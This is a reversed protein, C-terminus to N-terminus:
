LAKEVRTGAAGAVGICLAPTKARDEGAENGPDYEAATLVGDGSHNTWVEPVIVGGDSSIVGSVLPGVAAGMGAMAADEKVGSSKGCDGGSTLGAVSALVEPSLLVRLVYRHPFRLAYPIPLACPFCQVLEAWSLVTTGTERSRMFSILTNQFSTHCDKSRLSRFLPIMPDESEPGGQQARAATVGMPWRRKASSPNLHWDLQRRTSRRQRPRGRSPLSTSSISPFPPLFRALLPLRMRFVYIHLHLTPAAADDPDTTAFIGAWPDNIALWAREVDATTYYFHPDGNVIFYVVTTPVRRGNFRISEVSRCLSLFVLIDRFTPAYHMTIKTHDMTHARASEVEDWQAGFDKSMRGTWLLTWGGDDDMANLPNLLFGLAKILQPRSSFKIESFRAQQPAPDPRDPLLPPAAAPFRLSAAPPAPAPRSAPRSAPCSAPCSIFCGAPWVPPLPVSTDAVHDRPAAPWSRSSSASPSSPPPPTIYDYCM